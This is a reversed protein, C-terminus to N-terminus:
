PLSTPVAKMEESRRWWVVLFLRLFFMALPVGFSLFLIAASLAFVYLIVFLCGVAKM